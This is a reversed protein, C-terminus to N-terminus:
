PPRWLWAQADAVRLFEVAADFNACNIMLHDIGGPM